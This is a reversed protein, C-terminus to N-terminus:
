AEELRDTAPAPQRSLATIRQYLDDSLNYDLAALSPRLQEDSRASIIPHTVGAHRGVWSVALTIASVGIEAALNSLSGATEHMWEVGYRKNYSKDDIIRGGGGTFYKGTLLGGGLPSYPAVNFGESIAMPLIEVEVQRKVLNYMPQLIDIRIGLKEAICAAKMTQWASYNSVGIYRFLGAERLEALISFTEDLSTDGDWQHLYFVDVMDMGLRERSKDLQARINAAGAGGVSACKTAIILQERESGAFQGLLQESRGETYVYATDFFNIGVARSADYMKRSETADAKGGFQMTGFSFASAPTGSTTTLSTTKL